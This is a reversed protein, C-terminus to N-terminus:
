TIGPSLAIKGAERVLHSTICLLLCTKFLSCPTFSMFSLDFHIHTHTPPIFWKGVCLLGSILNGIWNSKSETHVITGPNLQEPSPQSCVQVCAHTRKEPSQIQWTSRHKTNQTCLCLSDGAYNWLWLSWYLPERDPEASLLGPWLTTQVTFVTSKSLATSPDTHHIAWASAVYLFHNLRLRRM